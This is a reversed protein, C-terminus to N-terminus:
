LQINNPDELQLLKSLSCVLKKETFNNIQIVRFNESDKFIAGRDEGFTMYSFAIKIDSVRKPM